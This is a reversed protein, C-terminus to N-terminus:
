EIDGTWDTPVGPQPRDPQAAANAIAQPPITSGDRVLRELDLQRADRHFLYGRACEYLRDPPIIYFDIYRGGDGAIQKYRAIEREEIDLWVEILGPGKLAWNHEGALSLYVGMQNLHAPLAFGGVRISEINETGTFHWLHIIM